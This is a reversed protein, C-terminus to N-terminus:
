EELARIARKMDDLSIAFNNEFSPLKFVMYLEHSSSPEQISVDVKGLESPSSSNDLHQYADVRISIDTAMTKTKRRLMTEPQVM